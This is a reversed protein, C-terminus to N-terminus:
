WNRVNTDSGSVRKKRRVISSILVSNPVFVVEDAVSLVTHTLNIDAVKGSIHNVKIEEGTKVILGNTLLVTASISAIINQTAFATAVGAVAAVSIGLAPNSALISLVFLSGISYGAIRILIRLRAAHQVMHPFRSNFVDLRTLMEVIFAVLITTEISVIYKQQTSIFTSINRHSIELTVVILGIMVLAGLLWVTIHGNRSTGTKEVIESNDEM